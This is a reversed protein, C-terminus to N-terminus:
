LRVSVTDGRISHRMQFICRVTVASHCASSSVVVSYTFTHVFGDVVMVSVPLM